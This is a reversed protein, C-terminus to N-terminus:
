KGRFSIKLDFGANTIKEKNTRKDPLDEKKALYDSLMLWMDKPSIYSQLGLDKLIPYKYYDEGYNYKKLLIPCELKKNIDCDKPERLVYLQNKWYNKENGCYKYDIIYSDKKYEWINRHERTFPEVDKGYYFKGRYFLGQILKGAIFLNVVSGFEDNENYDPLSFDRRDLILLPDVGYIGALFDYYDKYKTIIKM